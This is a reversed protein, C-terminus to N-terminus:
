GRDDEIVEEAIEEVVEEQVELEALRQAEKEALIERVRAGIKETEADIISDVSNNSMIEEAAKETVSYLSDRNYVLNKM